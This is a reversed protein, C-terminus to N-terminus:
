KELAEVVRSNEAEFFSVTEEEKSKFDAKLQELLLNRSKLEDRENRLRKVQGLLENNESKFQDVLKQLKENGDMNEMLISIMNKNIQLTAEVDELDLLLDQNEKELYRAKHMLKDYQTSPNRDTYCRQEANLEEFM